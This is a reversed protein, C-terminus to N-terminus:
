ELTSWTLEPFAHQLGVSLQESRLIPMATATSDLVESTRANGTSQHPVPELVVDDDDYLAIYTEEPIETEPAIVPVSTQQETVRALRSQNRAVPPHVDPGRPDSDTANDAPRALDSDHGRRENNLDRYLNCLNRHRLWEANYQEEENSM